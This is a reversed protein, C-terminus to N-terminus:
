KRPQTARAKRTIASAQRNLMPRLAILDNVVVWVGPGRNASLAPTTTTNPTIRCHM